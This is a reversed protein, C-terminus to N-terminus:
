YYTPVGLFWKELRDSHCLSGVKSFHTCKCLRLYLAINCLRLGTFEEIALRIPAVITSSRNLTVRTVASVATDYYM